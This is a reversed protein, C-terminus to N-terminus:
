NSVPPPKPSTKGQKASAEEETNQILNEQRPRSTSFVNQDGAVKIGHSPNDEPIEQERFLSENQSLRGKLSIDSKLSKRTNRKLLCAIVSIAIVLALILFGISILAVFLLTETEKHKEMYSETSSSPIKNVDICRDHPLDIHEKENTSCTGSPFCWMRQRIETSNLILYKDNQLSPEWVINKLKGMYELNRDNSKIKSLQTLIFSLRFAEKEDYELLATIWNERVAIKTIKTIKLHTLDTCLIQEM